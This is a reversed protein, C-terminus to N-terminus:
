RCCVKTWIRSGAVPVPVNRTSAMSRMLLTTTALHFICPCESFLISSNHFSYTGLYKNGRSCPYSSSIAGYAM